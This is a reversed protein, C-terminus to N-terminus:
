EIVEINKPFNHYTIELFNNFIHSNGKDKIIQVVEFTFVHLDEFEEDAIELGNDSYEESYFSAIIETNDQLIMKFRKNKNREITDYFPVIVAKEAETFYM